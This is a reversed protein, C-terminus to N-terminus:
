HSFKCFNLTWVLVNPACGKSQSTFNDEFECKKFQNFLGYFVEVFTRGKGYRLSKAHCYYCDRERERERYIYINPNEKGKM